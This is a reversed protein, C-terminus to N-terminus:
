ASERKSFFSFFKLFPFPSVLIRTCFPQSRGSVLRSFNPPSPSQPSPQLNRVRVLTSMLCMRTASDLLNNSDPTGPIHASHIKPEILVYVSHSPPSVSRLSPELFSSATSGLESNPLVLLPPIPLRSNFTPGLVAPPECPLSGLVECRGHAQLQGSPNHGGPGLAIAPASPFPLPAFAYLNRKPNTTVSACCRCPVGQITCATCRM